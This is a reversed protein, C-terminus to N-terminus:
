QCAINVCRAPIMDIRIGMPIPMHTPTPHAIPLYFWRCGSRLWCGGVQLLWGAPKTEYPVQDNV